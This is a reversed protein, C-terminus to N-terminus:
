VGGMQQSLRYLRLAEDLEYRPIPGQGKKFAHTCVLYHPGTKHQELYALICWAGRNTPLSLVWLAPESPVNRFNTARMPVHQPLALESQVYARDAVPFLTLLKQVPSLQLVTATQFQTM